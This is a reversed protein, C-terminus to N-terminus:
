FPRKDSCNTMMQHLEAMFVPFKRKAVQTAIMKEAPTACAPGHLVALLSAPEPGVGPWVACVVPTARRLTVLM